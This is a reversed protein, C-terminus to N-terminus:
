GRARRRLASRKSVKVSRCRRISAPTRVRTSSKCPTRQQEGGFISPRGGTWLSRGESLVRLAPSAGVLTTKGSGSEGVVGVIEGKRVSLTVDDLVPRPAPTDRGGRKQPFSKSLNRVLVAEARLRPRGPRDRTPTLANRSREHAASWPVPKGADLALIRSARSRVTTLDHSILLISTGDREQLRQLLDLARAASAADLATTPEDAILVRPSLIVAMAMLVRQRQGGSIESPFAAYIRLPDDLGMEALLAVVRERRLKKDLKTHLRLPEEVQRGCMLVPNLASLPDQPLFAILKGRLGSLQKPTAHLIDLGELYASGGAVHLAEPLLGMLAHGITSKGSGSPGVLGVM